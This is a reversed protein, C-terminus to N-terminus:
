CEESSARESDDWIALVDLCEIRGDPGVYLPNIELSVLAPGLADAAEAISM